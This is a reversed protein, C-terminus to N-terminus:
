TTLRRLLRVTRPRIPSLYTEGVYMSLGWTSSEPDNRILRFGLPWNFPIHVSGKTGPSKGLIDYHRSASTPRVTMHQQLNPISQLCSALSFTTNWKTWVNLSGPQIFIVFGWARWRLIWFNTRMNSSLVMGLCRHGHTILCLVRLIRQRYNINGDIAIRTQCYAIGVKFSMYRISPFHSYEATSCLTELVTYRRSGYARECDSLIM